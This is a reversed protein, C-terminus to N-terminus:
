PTTGPSLFPKPSLGAEPKSTLLGSNHNQRKWETSTPLWTMGLLIVQLNLPQVLPAAEQSPEALQQEIPHQLHVCGRINEFVVVLYLLAGPQPRSQGMVESGTASCFPHPFSLVLSLPFTPPLGTTQFLPVFFLSKSFLQPSFATLFFNM